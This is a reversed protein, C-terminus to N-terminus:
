RARRLRTAPIRRCAPISCPACPGITRSTGRSRWRRSRARAARSSVADAHRADAALDRVPGARRRRDAAVLPAAALVSRQPRQPGRRGARRQPRQSVQHRFARRPRRWVRDAPDARADAGHQRRRGARGAAHALACVASLDTIEWTPNAPTEVWVLRTAGPRIAAKAADVPRVPRRIRRRPGLDPRVRGAMQPRGLLAHAVGRCPRRAAAGPLRRDGGGHRLRVPHLRRRRRRAHGADARGARLDPQRRAHLRPGSPVLRRGGARFQHFRQDAADLRGIDPRDRGAGAGGFDGRSLQSGKM